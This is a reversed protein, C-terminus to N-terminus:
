VEFNSIEYSAKELKNFMLGLEAYNESTVAVYRQIQAKKM